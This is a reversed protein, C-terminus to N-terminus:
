GDEHRLRELASIVTPVVAGLEAEKKVPVYNNLNILCM